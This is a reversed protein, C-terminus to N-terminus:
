EQGPLRLTFRVGGDLGDTCRVSGKHATAIERVQALGLGHGGAKGRHDGEVRVFREFIAERLKPPVGLGNDVVEIVAESGEARLSLSVQCDNRDERRYKLANDLLCSVADRLSPADGLVQPAVDLDVEFAVGAQEFRPAWHEVAEMVPEEPDLPEPHPLKRERTVSLIEDVRSTLRDAEDMVRRAAAALAAPEPYAGLEINEAMLRIGALPTKLEHTVRTAFDRQRQLLERQHRANRVQSTTALLGLTAAVLVLSLIGLQGGSALAVRADVVAEPLGVSLHSLTRGFSVKVRLPGPMPNGGLVRGSRDTIVLGERLRRQSALFHAILMSQDLQIAVGAGQPSPPSVYLLFPPSAYQDFTFRRGESALGSAPLVREDIERWARLRRAAAAVEHELAAVTDGRGERRLIPLIETEVQHLVLELVPADQHTVDAGLRELVAIGEERQPSELLARARLLQHFVVRSPPVGLNLATQIAVHTGLGPSDLAELAADARGESLWLMAADDAAKVRVALEEGQCGETYAQAIVAHDFPNALAILQASAMCPRHDVQRTAEEPAPLPFLFRPPLARPRGRVMLSRPTEWLYLSDLWPERARLQVQYLPAHAPDSAVLDAWGDLRETLASEWLAVRQSLSEEFEAVADSRLQARQRLVAVLTIGALFLLALTQVWPLLHAVHPPLPSRM